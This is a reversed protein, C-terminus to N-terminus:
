GEGGPEAASATAVSDKLPLRRVLATPAPANGVRLLVAVRAGKELSPFAARCAAVVAAARDHSEGKVGQADDGEVMAELSPIAGMPQAVLGRRTLALWARQMCRGVAVDASADTSGRTVIVCVGSASEVLRRAHAGMKAMAGMAELRDQPMRRLADLTMRDAASLELSGLSLGLAVEENDRVDFRVARLASERARADAFFAAEGEEVIPGLARVRERGFWLTRAGELPPTAQQLWAFTADDLPRGDYLRRNTVRRVLAKDAEVLRKPPAVSITVLAPARAPLFRVASGNRGARLLACELAAGVAISGMRGGANAPSRDREHDLLFSVTDGEVVFRWPQMNDHSPAIRAADLVHEIYPLIAAAPDPM